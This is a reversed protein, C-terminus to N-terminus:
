GSALRNFVSCQVLVPVGCLLLLLLLLTIATVVVVVDIIGPFSSEHSCPKLKLNAELKAQKNFERYLLGLPSVTFTSYAFADM